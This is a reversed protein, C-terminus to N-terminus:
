MGYITMLFLSCPEHSWSRIFLSSKGNERIIESCPLTTTASAISCAYSTGITAMGLPSFLWSNTGFKPQTGSDSREGTTPRPGIAVGMDGFSTISCTCSSGLTLIEVDRVLWSTTCLKSEEGEDNRTGVHQMWSLSIEGYANYPTVGLPFNWGLCFIVYWIHTLSFKDGGM